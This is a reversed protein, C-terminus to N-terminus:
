KGRNDIWGRTVLYFGVTNAASFYANIQGSTNTRVRFTGAATASAVSALDAEGSVITTSLDLSRFTVYTPNNPAIYANIIATVKILPPVTLYQIFWGVSTAVNNQNNVPTVLLFEDGLQAFLLIHAAGDTGISGIRRKKTYNTPMTPTTASTSILVDVVGTDTREILFVHYWTSAAVTGTDLGGAGNGVAWTASVSKTLAGALTMMATGDDSCATGVAIDLMTNPTTADNSLTLGGLYNQISSPATASVNTAPVWQQSTGDDYWVYLQGDTSDWWLEGVTPSAPPTPNIIAGGTGGGGGSGAAGTAGTPGTTGAGGASGSPGTPGTGV